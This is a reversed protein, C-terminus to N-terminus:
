TNLFFDYTSNIQPYVESIKYQWESSKFILEM